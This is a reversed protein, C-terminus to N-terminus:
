GVDLDGLRFTRFNVTLQTAVIFTPDTLLDPPTARLVDVLRIISEVEVGAQGALHGLATLVYGGDEGKKVLAHTELEALSNNLHTRDWQWATISQRQLFVGFSSHLFEVVEDAKLGTTVVRQAAAIARIVLSRPDTDSALFHSTLAEPNGRVYHEWFYYEDNGSLAVVYSSGHDAFGLRGARGIMNKYEAVSYAVPPDGPHELGAIVVAEAPTNIGMALTTTAVIVRIESKPARFAEEVVRREDRELDANHFAV